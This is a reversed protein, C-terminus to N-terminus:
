VHLLQVGNNSIEIYVPLNDRIKPTLMTMPRTDYFKTGYM